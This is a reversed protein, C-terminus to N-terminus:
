STPKAASSQATMAIRASDTSSPSHRPSTYSTSDTSFQIAAKRSAWHSAGARPTGRITASGTLQRVLSGSRGNRVDVRWNQTVPTTAKVSVSTTALYTLRTTTVSPYYLSAGMSSKIASRITPLRKYTQEGPCATLGADRHGSVNHLTVKQGEPYKSGGRSTMTTKGLPNVYHLGLKWAFLRAISDKISAM